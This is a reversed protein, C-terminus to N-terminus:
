PFASAKFALCSSLACVEPPLLLSLLYAEIRCEGSRLQALLEKGTRDVVATTIDSARVGLGLLLAEAISKCSEFKLRALFGAKPECGDQRVGQHVAIILYGISPRSSPFCSLSFSGERAWTDKLLFGV